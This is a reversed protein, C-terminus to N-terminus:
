HVYFDKIIRDFQKFITNYLCFKITSCGGNQMLNGLLTIEWKDSNLNKMNQLLPEM